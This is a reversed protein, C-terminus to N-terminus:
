CLTKFTFVSTPAKLWSFARNPLSLLIPCKLNLTLIKKWNRKFFTTTAALYTYCVFTNCFFLASKEQSTIPQALQMPKWPGIVLWFVITIRHRTKEVACKFLQSNFISLGFNILSWQISTVISKVCREVFVQQMHITFHKNSSWLKGFNATISTKSPQWCCCRTDTSGPCM